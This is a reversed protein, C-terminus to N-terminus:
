NLGIQAFSAQLRPMLRTWNFSDAVLARGRPAIARRAATLASLAAAIAPEKPETLVAAGSRELTPAIHISSSVICPVGLALNELLAISHCEWRSPHVYGDAQQLFRLKEGGGVAGELRIWPQVGHAAIVQQLRATGGKYDYGHIRVVPREAAPLQAVAAALADLGKHVPDLRGIWALYGGGGTWQAEPVDFGTPLVLFTARPALAAIDAIESEFFVHVAAARELMHRELENRVWRPPKLYRRWAPEYVGHPMVVYPIGARRAAAAAILTSPVWGEHLVLLDNKGLHRALRQPRLTLRHRGAHPIAQVSLGDLRERSVFSVDAGPEAHEAHLVRVEIGSQAQARAWSWLAFTVGSNGM